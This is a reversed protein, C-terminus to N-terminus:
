ISDSPESGFGFVSPFTTGPGPHSGDLTEFSPGVCCQWIGSRNNNVSLGSGFPAAPFCLASRIAKSLLLSRTKGEESSGDEERNRNGGSEQTLTSRSVALGSAPGSGAVAAALLSEVRENLRATQLM